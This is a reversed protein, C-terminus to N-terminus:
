VLDAIQAKGGDVFIELSRGVELLLRQQEELPLPLGLRWGLAPQRGELLNCPRCAPVVNEIGDTGGRSLPVVHDRATAEGGCYVCRGGYLGLVM